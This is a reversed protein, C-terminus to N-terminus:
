LLEDNCVTFNFLTEDYNREGAIPPCEFLVNAWSERIKVGRVGQEDKNTKSCGGRGGWGRGGFTRENQSSSVRDGEM